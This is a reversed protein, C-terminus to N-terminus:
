SRCSMGRVRFGPKWAAREAWVLVCSGPYEDPQTWPLPNHGWEGASPERATLCGGRRHRSWRRVRDGFHSRICHSRGERFRRNGRVFRFCNADNAIQVPRGVASALDLASLAITLGLRIRMRCLAPLPHSRGPVAVGIPTM